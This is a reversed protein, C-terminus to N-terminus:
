NSGVLSIVKKDVTVVLLLRGNLTQQSFTTPM